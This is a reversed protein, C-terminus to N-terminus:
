NCNKQKLQNILGEIQAWDSNSICKGSCGTGCAIECEELSAYIGPTGYTDADICAGNICDYIVAAPTCDTCSGYDAPYDDAVIEITSTNRVESGDFMDVGDLEWYVGNRITGPRPKLSSTEGCAKWTYSSGSFPNARLLWCKNAM